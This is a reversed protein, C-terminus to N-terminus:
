RRKAPKEKLMPMLKQLNRERAEDTKLHSLYRIIEKQRYATLQSFAAMCKHKVLATKLFVPMPYAKEPPTLDPGISFRAADGVAKGAARLMPGNVYLRYPAARVPVLTQTFPHGDITGTIRIYGKVAKLRATIGAPVDVCPNIGVKYIVARFSRNM